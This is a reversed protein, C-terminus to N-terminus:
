AARPLAIQLDEDALTSDVDLLRKRIEDNMPDVSIVRDVVMGAMAPKGGRLTQVILICTDDTMPAVPGGFRGALDVVSVFQGFARIVGLVNAPANRVPTIDIYGVIERVRSLELSFTKGGAAFTICKNEPPSTDKRNRSKKSSKASSM